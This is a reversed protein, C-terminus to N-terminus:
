AAPLAEQRQLLGGPTPCGKDAASTIASRQAARQARRAEGQQRLRLKEAQREAARRQQRSLPVVPTVSAPKAPPRAFTVLDQIAISTPLADVPPGAEPLTEVDSQCQPAQLRTENQQGARNLANASGRLRLVQNVTLVPDVARSLADLAGFGFAIILAVFRLERDTRPSYSAIVESAARRAAIIDGDPSDLFLLALFGLTKDLAAATFSRPKSCPM